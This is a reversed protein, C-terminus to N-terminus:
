LLEMWPVSIIGSNFNPNRREFAKTIYNIVRMDSNIGGLRLVITLFNVHKMKVVVIDIM